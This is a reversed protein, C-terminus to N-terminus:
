LGGLSSRAGPKLAQRLNEIVGEALEWSLVGISRRQLNQSLDAVLRRRNEAMEALAEADIWRTAEGGSESDELTMSAGAEEALEARPLLLIVQVEFGLSRLRALETGMAAAPGLGDSLYILGRGAGRLRGWDPELPGGAKLELVADLVRGLRGGAGSRMWGDGLPAGSAGWLRLAAGRGLALAALGAAALRAGPLVEPWGCSMSPSNDIVIEIQPEPLDETLRVVWRGLRAYVQWDLRRFDDGPSYPRSAGLELGEGVRRRGRRGRRLARAWNYIGQMLRLAEVRSLELTTM